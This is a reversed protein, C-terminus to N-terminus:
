GLHDRNRQKALHREIEWLVLVFAAGLSIVVGLFILTFAATTLTDLM